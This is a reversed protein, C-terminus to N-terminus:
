EALRIQGRDRLIIRPQSEHLTVKGEFRVKKGKWKEVEPFRPKTSNMIVATFTQKPYAGGFNLFLTGKDGTVIETVVDEVIVTEGVKTAASSADQVDAAFATHVLTIIAAVVQLVRM